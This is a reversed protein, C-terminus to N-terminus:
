MVCVTCIVCQEGNACFFRSCFGLCSVSMKITITAQLTIEFSSHFRYSVCQPLPFTASNQSFLMCLLLFLHFCKYRIIVMITIITIIVTPFFLLMPMSMIITIIITSISFLLPSVSVAFPLHDRRYLLPVHFM